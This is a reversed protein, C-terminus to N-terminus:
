TERSAREAAKMAERAERPGFEAIYSREKQPPLGSAKCFRDYSENLARYKASDAIYADELGAAKDGIMRRKVARLAREIRRQYQTAEYRTFEQGEFEFPAPDIRALQEDTYTRESIGEFWPFYMHRCNVGCLGDVEGLGCVAYVSPYIDGANRSYVRGQWAKHNQWGVGKDRAGTHASTEVYPTELEAAAMDSNQASLQTIGTMVARRAAVDIRDHHGTAYDVVQLGSDTLEKVAQRIAVDYSDAGSQIRVVARDLVTQYAEAMPTFHIEGDLGRVAFGMSQTLNLFEGQTQRAIAMAQQFMVDLTEEAGLLQAKDFVQGYFKQNREIADGFISDLQTQSIKLTQRIRKEIESLKLGRRQLERILELATANADGTKLQECIKEIIYDELSRYLPTLREGAAQMYEPTIPYRM